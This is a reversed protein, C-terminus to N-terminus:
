NNSNARKKIPIIEPEGFGEPIKFEFVKKDIKRNLKPRLFKIEYIDNQEVPETSVAVIKAPLGLKKDIWFDISVYDDKYVSNPKVKLHVQIFDEQKAKKQEVLTVEFQKKLEEVRTFGIIPLNRSALDFVDEPEDADNPETLQYYKVEEIQYDIFVLWTGKFQHNAHTLRTGDLVIYQEIYKEEKEDEQKLTQFNVRLASKGGSRAYYLIGKRLAESGFLSPQIFKYEIQCEYSELESTKKNLQELVVDVPDSKPNKPKQTDSSEM